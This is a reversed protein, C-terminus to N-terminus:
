ENLGKAETAYQDWWDVVDEWEPPCWTSQLNDTSTPMQALREVLECAGEVFLRAKEHDADFGRGDALADLGDLYKQLKPHLAM